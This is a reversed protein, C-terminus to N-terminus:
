SLLYALYGKGTGPKTADIAVAQSDSEIATLVIPTLMAGAMNAKDADSKFPFEEIISLIFAAARQADRQTPKAPIHYTDTSKHPVYYRRTQADYGQQDLISGDPRLVPSRVIGRLAPFQWHQQDLIFNAIRGTP